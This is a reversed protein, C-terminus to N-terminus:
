GNVVCKTVNRHRSPARDEVSGDRYTDVRGARGYLKIITRTQVHRISISSDRLGARGVRCPRACLIQPVAWPIVREM